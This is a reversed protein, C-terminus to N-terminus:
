GVSENKVYRQHHIHLPGESQINSTTYYEDEESKAAVPDFAIHTSYYQLDRLVASTHQSGPLSYITKYINRKSITIYLCITFM